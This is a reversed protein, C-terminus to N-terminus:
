SCFLSFYECKCIPLSTTCVVCLLGVFVVFVCWSFFKILQFSEIFASYQGCQIYYMIIIIIIFMHTYTYTYHYITRTDAHAFM